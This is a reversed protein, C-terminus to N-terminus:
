QKIFKIPKSFTNGEQITLFYVSPSLSSVDVRKSNSYDEVTLKSSQGLTNMVWCSFNESKIKSLLGLYLFDKTPNPFISYALTNEKVSLQLPTPEMVLELNDLYISSNFGHISDTNTSWIILAASDPQYRSADYVIPMSFFTWESVPEHLYFNNYSRSSGAQWARFNIRATDDGAPLYKYYGQLYKFTDTFPFTPTYYDNNETGIYCYGARPSGYYDYSKILLSTGGMFADKGKIKYVSQDALFINYNEYFLLDVSRWITPYDVGINDWDEFDNNVIDGTREGINEFHLDDFIVFGDGSVKNKIYSYLYVWATDPTRVGSWEIPVSYKVFEGNTSGSFRFDIKGRYSGKERFVVYARATDGVALDHKSWFVMSLPEGSIAFGDLEQRNSYNISTVYARTGNSTPSYTNKLKLAYNGTKSDSTREVNKNTPSYWGNLQYHDRTEWTEFDGNPITQSLCALTVFVSIHTLILRM